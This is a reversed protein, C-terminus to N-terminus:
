AAVNVAGSGSEAQSECFHTGKGDELIFILFISMFRGQSAKAFLETM